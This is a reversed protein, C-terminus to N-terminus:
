TCIRSSAASRALESEFECLDGARTYRSNITGLLKDVVRAGVITVGIKAEEYHIEVVGQGSGGLFFVAHWVRAIEILRRELDVRYVIRYPQYIIERLQPSRYEPVIRGAEPHEQLIDTRRM